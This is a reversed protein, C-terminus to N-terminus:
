RSRSCPNITAAPASAHSATRAVTLRSARRRCSLFVPLRGIHFRQAKKTEVDMASTTEVAPAIQAPDMLKQLVMVDIDAHELFHFGPRGIPTRRRVNRRQCTGGPWM